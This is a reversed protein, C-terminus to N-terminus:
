KLRHPYQQVYIRSGPQRLSLDQVKLLLSVFLLGMLAAAADGIVHYFDHWGAVAQAFADM